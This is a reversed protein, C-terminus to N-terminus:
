LSSLATKKWTRVNGSVATVVYLYSSDVKMTGVQGATSTVGGTLNTAAVAAVAGTVTGSASATVLAAAAAAANVAAIVQAASSTGATIVPTGTEVGDPAWGSALDPTAETGPAAIWLAMSGALGNEYHRLEWAAGGSPYIIQTWRGTAPVSGPTTSYIPYSGQLGTYPLEGTADPSLTGSIVMRAKTGPTVTIADGAVAVATTAAAAPTAYTITIDNGDAGLGAVATYLVSNDAGTPNITVTAATENVPTGGSIDTPGSESGRIVDNDVTLTVTNSSTIVDGVQFEMEFNLTVSAVDEAAGVGLLADLEETDLNLQFTYTTSTGTGAKTWSPAAAVFDGDYDGVEKVGLKGAAGSALETIVIGRCFRVVIEVTDGRKLRLASVLDGNGNSSVFQGKNLDFYLDM